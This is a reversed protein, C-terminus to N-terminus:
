AHGGGGARRDGAAATKMEPDIAAPLIMSGREAIIELLVTVLAPDFHTGACRKLESIVEILPMAKRYPRDAVMADFSEVLGIIRALYPIEDGKLGDPYGGGDYREHHHRIISVVNPSLDLPAILKVGIETHKKIAEFEPEALKGDKFIIRNEVGVKGIDHLFAGVELDKREEASLEIRDALLNAYINVRLSHHYTYRDKNELTNALVRVFQLYDDVKGEIPKELVALNGLFDRLADMRKKKELTRNIVSLLEAVNFPKSLYDAAGYRIGDVASKLTGYGTIIVAEVNPKQKKIERLLEAGNLGPLKLDLTVLDIEREALIELAKQGNEATYVTNFPSLIMRIADRSGVEDEVVLINPKPSIMTM